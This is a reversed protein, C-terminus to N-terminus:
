LQPPPCTSRSHVIHAKCRALPTANPDRQASALVLSLFFFRFRRMDAARPLRLEAITIRLLLVTIRTPHM